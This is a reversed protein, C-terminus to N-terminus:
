TYLIQDSFLSGVSHSPRKLLSHATWQCAQLWLCAAFMTRAHTCYKAFTLLVCRQRYRDLMDQSILLDSGSATDDSDHKFADDQQQQQEPQKSDAAAAATASGTATTATQLTSIPVPGELTVCENSWDLNAYCHFFMALVQKGPVNSV